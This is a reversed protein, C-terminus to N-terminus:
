LEPNDFELNFSFPFVSFGKDFANMWNIVNRPLPIPKGYVAGHYHVGDLGVCYASSLVRKVALAIPCGRGSWPQGNDIDYQTVEIKM